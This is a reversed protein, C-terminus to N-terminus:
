FLGPYIAPTYRESTMEIALFNDMVVQATIKTATYTITGVKFDSFSMQVVDPMSALIMEITVQIKDTTSRIGQILDRGVNDIELAFSRATQGDDVPLSITMPIATFTNGRSLVDASNNVLRATFGTANLTVLTLFPDESEQAFIQKQVQTSLENSM